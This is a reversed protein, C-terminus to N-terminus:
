LDGVVNESRIIHFVVVNESRIAGSVFLQRVGPKKSVRYANGVQAIYEMEIAFRHM